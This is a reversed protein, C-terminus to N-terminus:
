LQTSDTKNSNQTTRKFVKDSNWPFLSPVAIKKLVRRAAQPDKGSYDDATFHESCVKTNRNIVFNTHPDRRINSIWRQVKEAVISPFSHFSIRPLGFHVRETNEASSHHCLPM